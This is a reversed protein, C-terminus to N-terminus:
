SGGGLRASRATGSRMWGALVSRRPGGAGAPSPRRLGGLDAHPVHRAVLGAVLLLLATSWADPDGAGALLWSWTGTLGTPQQGVTGAALTLVFAPAWAAVVPLFSLALWALGTAGLLNRVAASGSVEGALDDPTSIALLTAAVAILLGDLVLVPRIMSRAALADPVPARSATLITMAMSMIVPTILALPVPTPRQQGATFSVSGLVANILAVALLVAVTVGASRARLFLGM